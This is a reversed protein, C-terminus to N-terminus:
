TLKEKTKKKETTSIVNHLQQHGINLRFKPHQSALRHSHDGKHTKQARNHKTILQCQQIKIYGNNTTDTKYIHTNKSDIPRQKQTLTNTKTQTNTSSEKTNEKQKMHQM